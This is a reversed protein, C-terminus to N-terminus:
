RRTTSRSRWGATILTKLQTPDATVTRIEDDTPPLGVLINKVKAVYVDPSDAQFPIPPAQGSSGASGSASGDPQDMASNPAGASPSPAGGMNCAAVSAIGAGALTSVLALTSRSM